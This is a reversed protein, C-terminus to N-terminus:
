GFYGLPDGEAGVGGAASLCRWATTAAGNAAYRALKRMQRKLRAM